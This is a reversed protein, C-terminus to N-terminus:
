NCNKNFETNDLVKRINGIYQNKDLTVWKGNDKYGDYGYLRLGEWAFGMYDNLPFKNNDLKRLAEAIPKVFKDAMHQHQADSTAYTNNNQAKYTFYWDLLNKRNNPDLGKKYEDVYKFIEAHIGEHLIIAAVDLTGRGSNQIYITINGNVLDSADTCGDDTRSNCAGNTWSKLILNYKNSNEFNKITSKFLDLRKLEEFVCKEKGTLENFIQDDEVCTGLNIDFFYGDGCDEEDDFADPCDKCDVPITFLQNPDNDFPDRTGNNMGDGGGSTSGGEESNIPISSGGGPTSCTNDWKNFFAEANNCDPGIVHDGSYVTGSSGIGIESCYTTYVYYCDAENKASINEIKNYDIPTVDVDGTFNFSNHNGIYEVKESPTYKLIFANSVGLSDVKILLNEFFIPNNNKRKILM